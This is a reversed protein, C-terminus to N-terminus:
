SPSRRTTYTISALTQIWLTCQEHRVEKRSFRRSPNVQVHLREPVPAFLRLSLSRGRAPHLLGREM